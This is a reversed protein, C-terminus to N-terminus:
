ISNRTIKLGVDRRYLDMYNPNFSIPFNYSLYEAAKLVFIGCSYCGKKQQPCKKYIIKMATLDPATLLFKRHLFFIFLKISLLIPTLYRNTSAISNYIQFQHSATHYVCLAWHGAGCPGDFIPILLLDNHFPNSVIKDAAKKPSQLKVDQISRASISFCTQGFSIKHSNIAVLTLYFDIVSSNVPRNGKLLKFDKGDIEILYNERTSMRSAVPGTNGRLMISRRLDRRVRCAGRPEHEM